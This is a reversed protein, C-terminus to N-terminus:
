ADSRDCANADEDVEVDMGCQPCNERSLSSAGYQTIMTAAGDWGCKICRIWVEGHTGKDDAWERMMRKAERVLRDKLRGSVGRRTGSIHSRHGTLHQRNLKM